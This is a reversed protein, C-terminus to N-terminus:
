ATDPVAARKQERPQHLLGAPVRGPGHVAGDWRNALRPIYYFEQEKDM